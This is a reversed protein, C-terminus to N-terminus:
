QAPEITGASNRVRVCGLRDSDADYCHSRQKISEESKLRVRRNDNKEREDREAELAHTYM